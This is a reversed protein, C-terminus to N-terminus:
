GGGQRLLIQLRADAAVQQHRERIAEAREHQGRPVLRLQRYPVGREVSIHSAAKRPNLIDVLRQDIFKRAPTIRPGSARQNGLACQRFRWRRLKAGSLLIGVAKWRVLDKIRDEGRVDLLIPAELLNHPESELWLDNLTDYAHYVVTLILSTLRRRPDFNG